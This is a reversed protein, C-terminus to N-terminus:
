FCTVQASQVIPLALKEWSLCEAPQVGQSINVPRPSLRLPLILNATDSIPLPGLCMGKWTDVSVAHPLATCRFVLGRTRRHKGKWVQSCWKIPSPLAALRPSPLFCGEQVQGTCWIRRSGGFRTEEGGEEERFRGVKSAAIRGPDGQRFYSM